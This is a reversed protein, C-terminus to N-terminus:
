TDEEEKKKAAKARRTEWVKACRTAAAKRASESRQEPTLARAGKSANESRQEPTLARAGKSANERRQEPTLARSAKSAKESRQQLTMRANTMRARESRQQPTMRAWLARVAKSTNERRQEPTMRAMRSSTGWCRSEIGLAEKCALDGCTVQSGRRAKSRTSSNLIVRRCQSCLYVNPDKSLGRRSAYACAPCRPQKNAARAKQVTNHHVANGCACYEYTVGAKEVQVERIKLALDSVDAAEIEVDLTSAKVKIVEDV